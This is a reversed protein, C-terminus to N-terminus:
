SNEASSRWMATVAAGVKAADDADAEELWHTGILFDLMSADYEVMCCALGAAERKARRKKRERRLARKRDADIPPRTLM